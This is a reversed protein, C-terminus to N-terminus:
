AKADLEHLRRAMGRLLSDRIMPSADLVAIFDDRSLVVAAVLSSALVTANRPAPDFLALEGFFDGPGLTGVDKSARQVNAGGSTIVFFENGPEGETVLPMADQFTRLSGRGAVLELEADSCASFMPVRRLIDLYVVRDYGSV